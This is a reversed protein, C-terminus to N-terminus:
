LQDVATEAVSRSNRFSVTSRLIPLRLDLNWPSIHHVPFSPRAHCYITEHRLVSQLWTHERATRPCTSHARTPHTHVPQTGKHSAHVIAEMSRRGHLSCSDMVM